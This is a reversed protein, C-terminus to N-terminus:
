VTREAAAPPPRLHLRLDATLPNAALRENVLRVAQDCPMDFLESLTQALIAYAEGLVHCPPHQQLRPSRDRQPNM